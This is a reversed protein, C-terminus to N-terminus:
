KKMESEGNAFDDIRKVTLDPDGFTDVSISDIVCGLKKSYIVINLGRKNISYDIGNIVISSKTYRMYDMACSYIWCNNENLLEGYQKIVESDYVESTLVSTDIDFFSYHCETGNWKDSLQEICVDNDKDIIALYSLRWVRALDEKLNLLHRSEFKNWYKNASDCVSVFIVVHDLKVTESIYDNLNECSYIGSSTKMLNLFNSKEINGKIYYKSQEILVESLENEEASELKIYTTNERRTIRETLNRNDAYKIDNPTKLIFVIINKINIKLWLMTDMFGNQAGIMLCGLSGLALVTTPLADLRQTGSLEKEKDSGTNTFVTYGIRNFFNVAELCNSMDSSSYSYPFFIATKLPEANYKELIAMANSVADNTLRSPYRLIENQNPINDPLKYISMLNSNITNDDLYYNYARRNKMNYIKLYELLCEIESKTLIIYSDIEPYITALNAIPETTIVVIKKIPITRNQTHYLKFLSILKLTRTADGIHRYKFFYHVGEDAVMYQNATEFGCAIKKMSDFFLSQSKKDCEDLVFNTLNFLANIYALNNTMKKKNGEIVESKKLGFAMEGKKDILSLIDGKLILSVIDRKENPIYNILKGKGEFKDIACKLSTLFKTQLEKGKKDNQTDKLLQKYESLLYSLKGAIYRVAREKKTPHTNLFEIREAFNKTKAEYYNEMKTNSLSDNRIYYYYYVDRCFAVKQAYYMIKLLFLSDASVITEGYRINEKKILAHRYIATTHECSLHTFWDKREAFEGFRALRETLLGEEETGDPLISRRLGKVVDSDYKEAMFYLKEYFNLDCTDDPDFFGLYAGQAAEIGKNRSAGEGINKENYIIKIRDDSAAKEEVISISRDGGCDDIFIFEIENLTQGLLSDLCREIYKEANYVPIIVSIKIGNSKVESVTDTEKGTELTEKETKLVEHSSQQVAAKFKETDM